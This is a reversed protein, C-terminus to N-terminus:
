SPHTEERRSDFAGPVGANFGFDLAFSLDIKFAPEKGKLYLTWISKEALDVEEAATIQYPISKGSTGQITFDKKKTFITAHVVQQGKVMANNFVVLKLEDCSIRRAIARAYTNQLTEGMVKVDSFRQDMEKHVEDLCCGCIGDHTQNQILKKWAENILGGQYDANKLWAMAAIPEVYKELLAEMRRNMQKQYIRTSAISSHVRNRAPILLDGALVPFQQGEGQVDALYDELTSLAYETHRSEANLRQVHGAIQAQPFQHDVGNMILIHRTAAWKKMTRVSFRIRYKVERYGEPLFMGNSYGNPLYVGLVQDGNVGRWTFETSKIQGADVGRMVVAAGIGFGRLIHPMQGSHGFSDPLYGVMMPKGFERAMRTGIMLNRIMSEGDPAFEDPLIYWPGVAIRGEAILKKLRERNEPRVQLYDELVITQGDFLFHTFAPDAEMIGLLKDVVVVLKVRFYQFPKYWERDWHTHPVIHVKDRDM